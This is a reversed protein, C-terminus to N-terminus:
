QARLGAAACREVLEATRFAEEAGVAPKGEGLVAEAFRRDEEVYGWREEFPEQSFDSTRAPEGPGTSVTLREMEETAACAHAGYLEVREFPFLWTAHACATLTATLGSAFTLLMSFDDPQDYVTTRARCVVEEVEGLLFRAMDLMHVPTEYLFGGSVAADGVWAPRQLEGRNMKLLASTPTMEGAELARKLERYVGAFRRNFGVQYVGRARRSAELVARADELSTAMPKESFVHLGAGLAALATASHQANPSCIYVADVRGLLEDLSAALEAGTKLAFLGSRQGDPDFVAAVRVRADRALVDAHVNAIHGAGIFGIRLSSM